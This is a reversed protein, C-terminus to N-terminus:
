FLAFHEYLGSTAWQVIQTSRWHPFFVDKKKPPKISKNSLMNPTFRSKNLVKKLLTFKITRLLSKANKYCFLNLLAHRIWSFLQMLRWHSFGMEKKCNEQARFALYIDLQQTFFKWAMLNTKIAFRDSKSFWQLQFTTIAEKNQYSKM